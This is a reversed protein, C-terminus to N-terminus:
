IGGILKAHVGNNNVYGLVQKMNVNEASYNVMMLHQRKPNVQANKIGYKQNLRNELTSIKSKSLTEKIHVVVGISRQAM